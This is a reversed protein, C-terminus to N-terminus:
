KLITVGGIIPLQKAEGSCANVIGLIMFVLSVVAVALELLSALIVGGLVFSLIFSIVRVIINLAIEVICLVLGQNSHFRAYQSDKAAFIPILVLIGIYSLIGFVKNESVDETNFVIKEEM